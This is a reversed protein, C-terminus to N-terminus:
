IVAKLGDLDLITLGGRFPSVLKEQELQKIGRSVVERASGIYKAIQEHTLNIINSQTKEVEAILFTVLRTEFSMFLMSEMAHVVASFKDAAVKLAFNEIVPNREHLKSLTLANILILECDTEADVLVDFTISQLLCSATLVCVDGQMQRFLTFEKGEESILYTRLEGNVVLFMGVCDDAAHYIREGAKYNVITVSELIKKREEESIEAWYKLTSSLFKEIDFIIDM